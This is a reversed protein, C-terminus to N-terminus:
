TRTLRQTRLYRDPTQFSPTPEQLPQPNDTKTLQSTLDTRQSIRIGTLALSPRPYRDISHIFPHRRHIPWPIRTLTQLFSLPFLLFYSSHSLPCSYIPLVTHPHPNPHPRLRVLLTAACSHSTGAPLCSFLLHPLHSGEHYLGGYSWIICGM